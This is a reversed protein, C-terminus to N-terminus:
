PNIAWAASHQVGWNASNIGKAIQATNYAIKKTNTATQRNYDTVNYNGNGFVFGIRQFANAPIRGNGGGAFGFGSPDPPNNGQLKALGKAGELIVGAGTFYKFLPNQSITSLVLNLGKLEDTFIRLIPIALEAMPEFAQQLLTKFEREFRGVEVQASFMTRSTRQIIQSDVQADKVLYELEKRLNKIAQIDGLQGSRFASLLIGNVQESIGRTSQSGGGTLGGRGSRNLRGFESNLILQDANEVGILNLSSRLGFLQGPQKGLRAADSYQKSGERIVRLLAEFAHIVPDIVQRLLWMGAGVAAMGKIATTLINGTNGGGLGGLFGLLGKGGVGGGAGSGGAGIIPPLGQKALIYKQLDPSRRLTEPNIDGFKNSLGGLRSSSAKDLQEIARTLGSTSKTVKQLGKDAPDLGLMEFLYSLRGAM